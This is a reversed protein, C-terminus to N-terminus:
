PLGIEELPVRRALPQFGSIVGAAEEELRKREKRDPSTRDPRAAAM